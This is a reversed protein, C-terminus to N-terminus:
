LCHLRYTWAVRKSPFLMAICSACVRPHVIRTDSLLPFLSCTMWPSSPIIHLRAGAATLLFMSSSSFIGCYHQSSPCFAETLNDDSSLSTSFSNWIQVVFSLSLIQFLFFFYQNNNRSIIFLFANFFHYIIQFLVIGLIVIHYNVISWMVMCRFNSM